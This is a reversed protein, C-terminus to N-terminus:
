FLHLIGNNIFNIKKTDISSLITGDSNKKFKLEQHIRYIYNTYDEFFGLVIKLPMFISFYRDKNIINSTSRIRWCADHYAIDDNFSVIGKIATAIGPNDI